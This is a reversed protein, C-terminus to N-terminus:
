ALRMVLVVAFFAALLSHPVLLLANLIRLGRSSARRLGFLAIVVGLVFAAGWAFLTWQNETPGQLFFVLGGILLLAGLATLIKAM